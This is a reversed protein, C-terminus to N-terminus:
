HTSGFWDTFYRWFNRNGYTSCDDGTGYMNKLAAANPQYPTYNYLAATARNVITVNSSGCSSNTFYPIAITQNARYTFSSAREGYEVLRSAAYYVQAPFSAYSSNSLQFGMAQTYRTTTLSSGTATLLGQEKQLMVLLVRPNVGCATASKSIIAAATENKGAKYASCHNTSMASTTVTYDKLCKIGSSSAACSSGKSNLFTQVQTQTMASSDFMVADSIIDGARFSTTTPSTLTANTCGLLKNTGGKQNLGWV